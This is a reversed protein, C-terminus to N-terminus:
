DGKPTYGFIKKGLNEFYLRSSPKLNDWDTYGHSDNSASLVFDFLAKIRADEKNSGSWEEILSKYDTSEDLKKIEEKIDDVSNEFFVESLAPQEYSELEKSLEIAELTYDSADEAVPAYRIHDLCREIIDEKSM